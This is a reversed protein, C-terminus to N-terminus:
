RLIAGVIGAGIIIFAPHFKGAAFIILFCLIVVMSRISSLQKVGILRFAAIIIMSFVALRIMNFAGNVAPIDKYNKYMAAVGVIILAPPLTIGLIAALMGPVGAMKYGVYTSVKISIAGPFISTVGWLDLFESKTLWGYKEVVEGEMLPLFSYAGGIAFAGIRLFSFFLKSLIM